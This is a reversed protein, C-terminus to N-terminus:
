DKTSFIIDVRRNKRRDIETKEPTVLPLNNSYGQYKLRKKTVGRKVLEKYVIKARQKSLKMAKGCCVHGRIFAQLPENKLLFDALKDIESFSNATLNATGDFFQINLEIQFVTGKEIVKKTYDEEEISTNQILTTDTKTETSIFKETNSIFTSDYKYIVDVRRWKNYNSIPYILNKPYNIGLANKAEIKTTPNINSAITNLRSSSITQNIEIKGDKSSYSNIEKIIVNPNNQLFLNLTDLAKQSEPIPTTENTNFYFSVTYLEQANLKSLLCILVTCLLFFNRIM